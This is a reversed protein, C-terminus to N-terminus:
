KGGGGGGGSGSSSGGNWSPMHLRVYTEDHLLVDSPTFSYASGHTSPGIYMPPELNQPPGSGVQQSPTNGAAHISSRAPVGYSAQSPHPARPVMHPPPAGYHTANTQQQQMPRDSM